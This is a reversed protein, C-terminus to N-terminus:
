TTPMKAGCKACFQAGAANGTGCAPCFRTGGPTPAAGPPAGMGPPVGAAGSQRFAQAMQQYEAARLTQKASEAIEHVHTRTEVPNPIGYWYIGLGKRDAAWGQARGGASAATAFTLSGWGFAREIIGQDMTVDQLKDLPADRSNRSVIGSVKMARKNTIAYFTRKWAMFAFPIPLVFGVLIYLGVVEVLLLVVYDEISGLSTFKVSPNLYILVIPFLILQLVTLLAALGGGILGRWRATGVMVIIWGIFPLFIFLLLADVFGTLTTSGSSALVGLLAGYGIATLVIGIIILLAGPPFLFAIRKPKASFILQEDRGLFETPIMEDMQAAPTSM